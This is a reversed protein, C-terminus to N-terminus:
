DLLTQRNFLTGDMTVIKANNFIDKYSYISAIIIQHNCFDDKLIKLMCEITEQEVERGSPSDCFIPLPYNCKKSLLKIYALKYIFVLKHLIVGSKSKLNHTFMDLKIDDHLRLLKAYKKVIDYAESIWSNNFKTREILRKSLREKQKQLSSLLNKIQISNLGQINALRYTLEEDITPINVFSTQEEIKSELEAIKRKLKNRNSILMSKRAINVEELIDYELLNEKTVRLPIDRNPIKIYIKKQSLYDSFDKNKKIIETLASIENEIVALEQKNKLIQTQLEQDYSQYDCTNGTKVNLTAQYDAVNLMLRYQSIKSELVKIESAIKYSEDSEDNNLGRFFEEISFRNSGIITGRNLLTWGKEQDFYITGLLNDLLEINSLGFLYSLAQEQEIPLDYEFNNIKLLQEKRYTLFELDNRELSVRIEYNKFKVLETDPVSFGLGYLVARMLTTKGTSNKESYFITVNEFNVIKEKFSHKEQIFIKKIKM